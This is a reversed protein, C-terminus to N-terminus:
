VFTVQCIYETRQLRPEGTMSCEHIRRLKKTVIGARDVEPGTIKKKPFSFVAVFHIDQQFPLRIDPHAIEDHFSCAGPASRPSIANISLLGRVALTTAFVGQRSASTSRRLNWKRTCCAGYKAV